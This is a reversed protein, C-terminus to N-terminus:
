WAPVPAPCSSLHDRGRLSRWARVALWIYGAFLAAELVLFAALEDAVSGAPPAEWFRRAIWRYWVSPELVAITGLLGFMATVRPTLGPAVVSLCVPFFAMVLYHPYSKRSVLLFTALVVVMLHLAWLEDRCATRRTAVLLVGAVAAVLALTLVVQIDARHVDLGALGLIFPVNGPSQRAAESRLPLLVDLSALMGVVGIGVPVAICAAVWAGTRRAVLALPPAFLLALFKVGAASLGLVLGSLFPRGAVLAYFALALSAAVWVQNQGAVAVNLLPVPSLVYLLAARRAVLEGALRRAVTLWLPAAALELVIAFLVLSEPADWLWVPVAAVYPFALGYSSAFDRYPLQGQLVATAQPYYYDAVDSAAPVGALGFLGFFMGLRTVLLAGLFWRAARVPTLEDVWSRRVAIIALGSLALGVGAKATLASEPTM